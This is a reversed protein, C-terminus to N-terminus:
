PLVETELEIFSDDARDYTLTFEVEKNDIVEIEQIGELVRVQKKKPWFDGGLFIVRNGEGWSHTVVEDDKYTWFKAFNGEIHYGNAWQFSNAENLHTIKYQKSTYTQSIKETTDYGAWRKLRYYLSMPVIM